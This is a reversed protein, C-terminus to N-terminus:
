GPEIDPLEGDSTPVCDAKRRWHVAEAAKGQEHLLM